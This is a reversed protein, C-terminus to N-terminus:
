VYVCSSTIFLTVSCQYFIATLVPPHEHKKNTQKNKNKNSNKYNKKQKGKKDMM